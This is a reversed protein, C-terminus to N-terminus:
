YRDTLKSVYNLKGKVTENIDTAPKFPSLADTLRLVVCKAFSL